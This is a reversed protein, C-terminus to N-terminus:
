GGAREGIGASHREGVGALQRFILLIDNHSTGIVPRMPANREPAFLEGPPKSPRAADEVGSPETM